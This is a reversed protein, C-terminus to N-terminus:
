AAVGGTRGKWLRAFLLTLVLSDLILILLSWIPRIDPAGFAGAAVSLGVLLILFTLWGAWYRDAILFYALLGYAPAAFFMLLAQGQFLEFVGALAHILANAVMLWGAMNLLSRSGM